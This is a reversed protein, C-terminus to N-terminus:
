AKHSLCASIKRVTNVNRITVNKYLKTGVVKNTQSKGQNVRSVSWLIAGPLYFVQDIGEQLPLLKLTEPGDYESWLFWVDAKQVKDNTWDEPIGSSIRLWEPKKLIIVPINLGLDKEIGQTIQQRCEERTGTSYFLINGTNLITEVDELGAKKCLDQLVKMPVKNKGGVNIGRLLAIYQLKGEVIPHKTRSELGMASSRAWVTIWSNWSLARQGFIIWRPDTWIVTELWGGGCPHPGPNYVTFLSM